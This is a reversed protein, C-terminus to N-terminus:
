KKRTSRFKRKQTVSDCKKMEVIEESEMKGFNVVALPGSSFKFLNLKVKILLSTKKKTEKFSPKPAKKLFSFHRFM